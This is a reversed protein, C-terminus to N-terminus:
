RTEFFRRYNEAVQLTLAEVPVEYLEAAFAYVSVINAPHNLEYDGGIRYMGGRDAGRMDPADTEILLRDFPVARFASRQKEKREHSFYGSLSFYAGLKVFAPVMERSGGFSHLLFGREPVPNSRLLDLMRGWARLCHISVPRNRKAAQDLQWLFAPEQVTLDHGEIWRDIGIEGVGSGPFRDLLELLRSEWNESAEGVKWPHLGFSPRLVTQSDCLGAVVKWDEECTGNVVVEKVGLESYLRIVEDLNSVIRPDQLHCHADYYEM